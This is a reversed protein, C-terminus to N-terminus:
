GLNRTNPVNGGANAANVFALVNAMATRAEKLREQYGTVKIATALLADSPTGVIAATCVLGTCIYYEPVTTDDSWYSGTTAISVQIGYGLQTVDIGVKSLAIYAKWLQEVADKINGDFNDHLGNASITLITLNDADDGAGGFVENLLHGTKFHYQPYAANAPAIVPLASSKAKSNTSHNASPGLTATSLRGGAGTRDAPTYAPDGGNLYVIDEVVTQHKALRARKPAPEATDPDVAPTEGDSDSGSDGEAGVTFYKEEAQENDPDYEGEAWEDTFYLSFDEESDDDERKRKLNRKPGTM